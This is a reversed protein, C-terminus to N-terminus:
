SDMARRVIILADVFDVIGDENIDALQMQDPSLEILGMAGRMVMLADDANLVGDGTVDGLIVSPEGSSFRAILVPEDIAGDFGVFAFMMNESLLEGESNFWGIFSEGENPYAYVTGMPFPTYFVGIKGAGEACVIDVPILPNDSFDLASIRNNQCDIFTLEPCNSLDIEQLMNNNCYLYRLATNNTIDLETLMNNECGFHELATNASIDIQSLKNNGAMLINLETCDSVDLETLENDGPELDKLATCGSVNLSTMPDHMSSCTLMELMEKGSVDLEKIYNMDCNITKILPCDSLDLQTIHNGTCVIKDLSSCGSLILGTLNCDECIVTKLNSLGTLDLDCQLDIFTCNLTELATCPLVDLSTLASCSCNLDSLSDCGTVDLKAIHTWSCDLNQLSSCGAANLSVLEKEDMCNISILESCDSVDLRGVCGSWGPLEVQILRFEDNIMEFFFGSWSWVDSPDYDENLKKGNPTGNEDTQELFGLVANYDHENFGEPAKVYESRAFAGAELLLLVLLLISVIRKM